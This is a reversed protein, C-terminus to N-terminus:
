RGLSWYMRRRRFQDLAVATVIICGVMVDQLTADIRLLVLGNALISLLVAGLATGLVSGTGGFLSTGGIIVASIVQLELGTGVSPQGSGLRASILVGGLAAASSTLVYLLVSIRRVNIGTARAARRNGGIAQIAWGFPTAHLVVHAAIGIVVAYVVLFPIGFLDGQGIVNFADPLPSIPLGGTLFATLGRAAYLMGLTQIFPPIRGYEILLGNVSGALGGLAVAGIIALPIPVGRTLLSAVSMAGVVFVSGVSLDLGAAVLVYTEFAAVIFILTANRIIDIFNDVSLYGPSQVGVYISFTAATAILLFQPSTLFRNSVSLGRTLAREATVNERAM